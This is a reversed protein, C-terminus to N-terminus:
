HIGLLKDVHGKGFRWDRGIKFACAHLPHGPTNALTRATPRTIAMLACIEQMTYAMPKM